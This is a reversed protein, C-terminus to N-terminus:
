EGRLAEVPKLRAARWAPILGALTSIAITLIVILAINIRLSVAMAYTAVAWALGPSRVESLGNALVLFGVGTGAWAILNLAAVLALHRGRLLVRRGRQM